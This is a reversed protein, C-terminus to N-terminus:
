KVSAAAQRLCFRDSAPAGRVRSFGGPLDQQPAAARFSVVHFQGLFCLDPHPDQPQEVADDACGQAPSSSSACVAVAFLSAAAVAGRNELWLM